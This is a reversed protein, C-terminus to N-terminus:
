TAEGNKRGLVLVSNQNGFGDEQRILAEPDLIMKEGNVLYMYEHRGEPLLVTLSWRGLDRDFQM